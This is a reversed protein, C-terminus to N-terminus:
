LAYISWLAFTQLFVRRHDFIVQYFTYMVQPLFMGYNINIAKKIESTKIADWHRTCWKLCLLAKRAGWNSLQLHFVKFSTVNPKKLSGIYGTAWIVWWLNMLGGADRSLHMCIFIFINEPVAEDGPCLCTYSQLNNKGNEWNTKWVEGSYLVSDCLDLYVLLMNSDRERKREKVVSCAYKRQCHPFLSRKCCPWSLSFIYHM